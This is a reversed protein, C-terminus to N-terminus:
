FVSPARPGPTSEGPMLALNTECRVRKYIELYAQTAQLTNFRAANRLGLERYKAPSQLVGLISEVASEPDEPNFYSAGDGGVETMPRRNSTAVPCGCAQAEIIPWGFGEALSPFLLLSARSYLARLDEDAVSILELVRQEIRQEKLFRRMEPLWPKGATVLIFDAAEPRKQFLSFIHLAGLRNKYWQNGGVHLVFPVDTPVGLRLLREQAEALEMPSYTYNLGNYIRSVKNPSLGTIQFVDQMTADSVCAVCQANKLGNLILSQLRRGAWRTRHLPIDGLASRVALLDHCTVVHSIDGLHRVYLSNSHDCIHVVDAWKAARRLMGPFLLFKDIYGLWKATAGTGPLKRALVRPRLVRVDEEAELLGHELMSVFRCMSESSDPLYNGVLLIRM